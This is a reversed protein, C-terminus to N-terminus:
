RIPATYKQIIFYGFSTSPRTERESELGAEEILRVLCGSKNWLHISFNSISRLIATYIERTYKISPLSCDAKFCHYLLSERANKSVM